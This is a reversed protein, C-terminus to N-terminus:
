RRQQGVRRGPGTRGAARSGHEATYSAGHSLPDRVRRSRRGPALSRRAVVGLEQECRRGGPRVPEEAADAFDPFSTVLLAPPRSSPSGHCRRLRDGSGVLIGTPGELGSGRELLRAWLEGEADRRNGRLQRLDCGADLSATPERASEPDRLSHGPLLRQIGLFGTQADDACPCGTRESGSDPAAGGASRSSHPCRPPLGSAGASFATSSRRSVWPTAHRGLMQVTPNLPCRVQGGPANLDDFSRGAAGHM